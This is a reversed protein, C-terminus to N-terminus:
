THFLNRSKRYDRPFSINTNREFLQEPHTAFIRSLFPMTISNQTYFYWDANAAKLFQDKVFKHATKGFLSNSYHKEVIVGVWLDVSNWGDHGYITRLRRITEADDVFTEWGSITKGNVKWYLNSFTPFGLERDQGVSEAINRLYSHRVYGRPDLSHGNCSVNSLSHSVFIDQEEALNHMLGLLVSGLSTEGHVLDQHTEHKSQQSVDLPRTKTIQYPHHENRYYIEEPIMSHMRFVSFLEAYPRPDQGPDYCLQGSQKPTEANQVITNIDEGFLAPLLHRYTIHQLEATVLARSMQYLMEDDWTPRSKHFYAAWFNHNRLFLTHLSLLGINDNCYNNDGCEFIISAKKNSPNNHDSDKDDDDHRDRQREDHDCATDRIRPPLSCIRQLRHHEDGHIQHSKSIHGGYNYDDPGNHDHDGSDDDDDTGRNQEFPSSKGDDELDACVGRKPFSVKMRGLKHERLQANRERSSGYIMSADILPIQSSLPHTSQDSHAHYNPDDPLHEDNEGNRPPRQHHHYETASVNRTYIDLLEHVSFRVERRAGFQLLDTLIFQCFYPLLASIGESNHIPYTPHAFLENVMTIPTTSNNPCGITNAHKGPHAHHRHGIGDDGDDDDDGGSDTGFDSSSGISPRDELLGFLLTNNCHKTPHSCEHLTTYNGYQSQHCHRLLRPIPIYNAHEEFSSDTRLTCLKHKKHEEFRCTESVFDHLDAPAFDSDLNTLLCVTEHHLNHLVLFLLGVLM